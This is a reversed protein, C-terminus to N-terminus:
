TLRRHWDHYRALVENAYAASGNYRALGGWVSGAADIDDRLVQCGVRLANRPRAAGGRMHMAQAVFPKWTLQPWNVGNSYSSHYLVRVRANTVRQHCFCPPATCDCGFINKQPIGTEQELLAVLLAVPLKHHHAAALVTGPKRVKHRRLKARMSLHQAPAYLPPDVVMLPNQPEDNNRALLAGRAEVEPDRVKPSSVPAHPM